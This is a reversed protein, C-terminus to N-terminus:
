WKLRGYRARLQQAAVPMKRRRGDRLAVVPEGAESRAVSTAGREKLAGFTDRSTAHTTESTDTKYGRPKAM